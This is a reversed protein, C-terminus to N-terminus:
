YSAPLLLVLGSFSLSELCVAAAQVLLFFLFPISLYPGYYLSLHHDPQLFLLFQTHATPRHAHQHRSVTGADGEFLEKFVVRDTTTFLYIAHVALFESKRSASLKRKVSFFQSQTVSPPEASHCSSILCSRLLAQSFSAASQRTFSTWAEHLCMVNCM